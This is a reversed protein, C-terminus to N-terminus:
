RGSRRVPSPRVPASPLSYGLRAMALDARRDYYAESKEHCIPHDLLRDLSSAYIRWPGRRKFRIARVKGARILEKRVYRDSTVLLKAVQQVTLFQPVSNM